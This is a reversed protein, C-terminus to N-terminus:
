TQSKTASGLKRMLHNALVLLELATEPSDIYDPEHARPGRVGTMSGAFIDMYGRQESEDSDSQFANLFLVPSNASFAKRMLDAGDPGALGSKMRVQKNVHKFAQEVALMFHGDVFLKRCTKRLGGDTILKDFASLCEYTGNDFLLDETKLDEGVSWDTDIDTELLVGANGGQGATPKPRAKVFTITPIPPVAFADTVVDLEVRPLALAENVTAVSSALWKSPLAISENWDAVAEILRKSPLAMSERWVSMAEVAQSNQLAITEISAALGAEEISFAATLRSTAEIAKIAPLMSFSISKSLPPVLEAIQRAHEGIRAFAETQEGLSDPGFGINRTSLELVPRYSKKIYNSDM